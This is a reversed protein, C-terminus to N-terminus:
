NKLFKRVIQGQNTEIKLYYLGNNLTNIIINQSIYDSHILRGFQDYLQYFAENYSDLGKIHIYDSSPNPYIQIRDIPDHIGILTFDYEDSFSKCGQYVFEARYTGSGYKSLEIISDQEEPLLTDNKFWLFPTKVDAVFAQNDIIDLPLTIKEKQHIHLLLVSDCSLTSITDSLVLSEKYYQDKFLVSDYACITDFQEEYQRKCNILQNELWIVKNDQQSCSFIDIDGDDDIDGTKLQLALGSSSSLTRSSYSKNNDNMLAYIRDYNKSLVLIDTFGDNDIDAFDIDSPQSVYDALISGNFTGDGNNLFQVAKNDDFSLIFVDDYGDSDIDYIAMSSENNTVAKSTLDTLEVLDKSVFTGNTNELYALVGNSINSNWRVYIIDEDGDNDVDLIDYQRSGAAINTETFKNNEWELIILDYRLNLFDPNGDQDFDGQKFTHFVKESPIKAEKGLLVGQDNEMWIPIFDQTSLYDMDGDNDYDYAVPESFIGNSIQGELKSTQVPLLEDKRTNKIVSWDGLRTTVIDMKQNGDLDTLLINEAGNSHNRWYYNYGVSETFTNIEIPRTDTLLLDKKSDNNYDKWFAPLDWGEILISSKTFKGKGNNLFLHNKGASNAIFDLAGDENFDESLALRSSNPLNIATKKKVSFDSNFEFLQASSTSPKSPALIFDAVSDGTFDAGLCHMNLDDRQALDHMIWHDPASLNQEAVVIQYGKIKSMYMACFVDLLGDSNVDAVSLLHAPWGKFAIKEYSFELDGLNKIYYFLEIREESDLLLDMDGDNDMDKAILKDANDAGGTEIPLFTYSYSGDNVYIGTHWYGKTKYVVVYDQFGDNNFDAVVLNNYGQFGSALITTKFGVGINEYLLLEKLSESGGIIDLDGDGDYDITAACSNNNTGTANISLYNM